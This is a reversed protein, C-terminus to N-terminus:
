ARHADHSCSMSWQWVAWWCEVETKERGSGTNEWDETGSEVGEVLIVLGLERMRSKFDEVEPMYAKRLPLEIVVRASKDRQLTFGIAATLWQPHMPSYLPDAVVVLDYKEWDQDGSTPLTSWDLVGVSAFGKRHNDAAVRNADVNARLNPVIALLDTLHVHLEFLSAIALGVLGTGAGLEIVNSRRGPHDPSLPGIADHQQANQLCPVYPILYPMRKALLYSALWTKHGLNDATLSPEHLTISISGTPATTAPIVFTRSLSPIASRGSRESLRASASEWILEKVADDEVWALSSAIISTLYKPVGKEDVVTANHSEEGENDGWVSPKRRLADLTSLLTTSSPRTYLQPLDLVSIPYTEQSDPPPSDM